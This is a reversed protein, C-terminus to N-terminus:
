FVPDLPALTALYFALPWPWPPDSLLPPASSPVLIRRALLGFACADFGCSLRVGM